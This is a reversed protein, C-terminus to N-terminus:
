PTKIQKSGLLVKTVFSVIASAPQEVEHEAFVMCQNDTLSGPKRSVFGFCKADPSDQGEMRPFKRSGPDMGCYLISEVPYHKRFFLKRGSDTLTVGKLSVKFYVKVGKPRDKQNMVRTIAERVASPGTLSEMDVCQLYLVSCAAGQQLLAAASKPDIADPSDVGGAPDSSYICCFNGVDPLVLKCPLALQTLTHQYILASLSGFIPENTCGKLRVGRTNPEILFHRILENGPDGGKKPPANVPAQSVKIALGFAGPFSNSDRVVFTGPQKDRLLHIADERTIHPKYWWSSLDKVFRVHEKNPDALSNNSGYPSTLPMLYFNSPTSRGSQIPSPGAPSVAQRVPSTTSPSVASGDSGSSGRGRNGSRNDYLTKYNGNPPSAFSEDIRPHGRRHRDSFTPYLPQPKNKM